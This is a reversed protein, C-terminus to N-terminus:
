RSNARAGHIISLFYQLIIEYQERVDDPGGKDTTLHGKEM